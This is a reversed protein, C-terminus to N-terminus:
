ATTPRPTRAKPRRTTARRTALPRPSPSSCMARFKDKLMKAFGYKAWIADDYLALHASGHTASVALFDPHKWSWIQANMANRMLNLWPSMLDTNDWLQRPGAKYDLLLKL